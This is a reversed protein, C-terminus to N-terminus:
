LAGVELRCDCAPKAAELVERQPHRAPLYGYSARHLRQSCQDACPSSLLRSRELLKALPLVNMRREPPVPVCKDFNEPLKIPPLPALTKM